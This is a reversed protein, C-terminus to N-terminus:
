PKTLVRKLVDAGFGLALLVFVGSVWDLSQIKELAGTVLGIGALLITVFMTGLSLWTSAWAYSKPPEIVVTVPTVQVLDEGRYRLCAWVEIPQPMLPERKMLYALGRRYWSPTQPQEFFYSATWDDSEIDGGTVSWLCEIRSRAAAEDFGAQRLHVRLGVRQYPLPRPPDVAIWLDATAIKRLADVLNAESVGQEAELVIARAHTLSEEPGPRLADLLETSRATRNTLVDGSQAGMLLHKFDAVVEAKAVALAVDAYDAGSVATPLRDPVNLLLAKVLEDFAAEHGVPNVGAAVRVRVAAARDGLAKLMAETPPLTASTRLRAAENLESQARKIDDDGAHPKEVVEFVTQCASRVQDSEPVALRASGYLASLHDGASAVLAIRREIWDIQGEFKTLATETTPDVPWLHRLEERLRRKEVRLLSLLRAPVLAGLGALQGELQVLRQKAAVRRRQMPLTYNILLSAIIGALLLLVVFFTNFAIQWVPDYRSITAEVKFRQRPLAYPELSADPEYEVVLQGARTATRLFGSELWPSRNESSAAPVRLTVSRNPRVHAIGSAPRGPLDLQWRFRYGMTDENRLHLEISQGDVMRLEVKDPNPGDVKVHFPAHLNIAQLDSLKDPGNRLTGISLGAQWLGSVELKVAVCRQGLKTKGEVLDRDAASEASLHRTTNLPFPDNGVGHAIFDSLALALPVADTSRNCVEVSAIATGDAAAVLRPPDEICPACTQPAGLTTGSVLSALAAAIAMMSTMSYRCM